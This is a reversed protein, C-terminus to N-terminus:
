NVFLLNVILTEAVRRYNQVAVVEQSKRCDLTNVRLVPVFLQTRADSARVASTRLITPSNQKPNM